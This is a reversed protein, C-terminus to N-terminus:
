GAATIVFNIEGFLILHIYAACRINRLFKLLSDIFKRGVSSKIQLVSGRFSQGEFRCNEVLVQDMAAFQFVHGNYCDRFTVNRITVNNAYGRRLIHYGDTCMGLLCTDFTRIDKNLIAGPKKPSGNNGTVTIGTVGPADM